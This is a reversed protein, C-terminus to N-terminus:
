KPIGSLLSLGRQCSLAHEVSIAHIPLWMCLNHTLLRADLWVPTVAHVRTIADRFASKHLWSRYRHLDLANLGVLTSMPLARESEDSMVKLKHVPFSGESTLIIILELQIGFRYIHWPQIRLASLIRMSFGFGSLNAIMCLKSTQERLSQFDLSLYM